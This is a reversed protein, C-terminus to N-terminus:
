VAVRVRMVRQLMLVGVAMVVPMVGVRVIRHGETFVAMPVPVLRQPMRMGVHRVRVVRM